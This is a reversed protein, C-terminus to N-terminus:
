PISPRTFAIVEVNRYEGRGAIVRDTHIAILKVWLVSSKGNGSSVHAALSLSPKLPIITGLALEVPVLLHPGDVQLRFDCKEYGRAWARVM